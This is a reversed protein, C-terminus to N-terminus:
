GEGDAEPLFEIRAEESFKALEPSAFREAEWVPPQEGPKAEDGLQIGVEDGGPTFPFPLKVAHVGTNKFRHRIGRPVFVFDGTRAIFTRGGDLM